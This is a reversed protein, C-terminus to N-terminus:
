KPNTLMADIMIYQLTKPYILPVSSQLIRNNDLPDILSASEKSFVYVYYHNDMLNALEGDKAVLKETNTSIEQRGELKSQIDSIMSSFGTFGIAVGIAIGIGIGIGLFQYKSVM